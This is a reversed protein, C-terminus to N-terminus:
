RLHAEIIKTMTELDPSAKWLASALEYPNEIGHKKFWAVEQRSGVSHVCDKGFLHEDETLPVAWRDTAKLSAGRENKVQLHHATCPRKGSVCSPLQGILKLHEKSMGPRRDRAKPERKKNPNKPPKFNGVVKEGLYTM